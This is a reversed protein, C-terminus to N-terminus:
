SFKTPKRPLFSLDFRQNAFYSGYYRVVFPSECQQMIAIESFFTKQDFEVHPPIAVMVM